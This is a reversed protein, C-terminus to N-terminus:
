LRLVRCQEQQARDACADDARIRRLDTPSLRRRFQCAHHPGRASRPAVSATRRGQALRARRRRDVDNSWSRSLCQSRLERDEDFLCRGDGQLSGGRRLRVSSARSIAREYQLRAGIGHGDQLDNFKNDTLRGAIDLRVQSVAGLPRSVSGALRVTRQYPKMGYWQQGGGVEATMRLQGVRYDPGAAFDLTIDNFDSERYINVDSAARAALQLRASLPLRTQVLGRVAAGVGSKVHEDIVFDGFVTGLTDSRTARNVNTDPALALELQFSLPKNAQLSAALRDVFRAVQPSLDGSRLARLQRLASDEDGMKGLIAALQLRAPAADPREDLIQRLLVAAASLKGDSAQLDALKYRAENRMNSDPDRTLLELVTQAENSRGRRLLQEALRLMQAATARVTAPGRATTADAPASIALLTLCVLLAIERGRAASSMMAGNPLPCRPRM